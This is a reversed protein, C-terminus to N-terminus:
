GPPAPGLQEWLEIKIGDPDLLWAFKGYVEDQRGLIEVGKGELEAQFADLDDVRLNIMFPMTGPDLYDSDEPFSSLLSFPDDHPEDGWRLVPGYEGSIGLVEKYWRTSAAVDKRKVFVGGLGTIRAM